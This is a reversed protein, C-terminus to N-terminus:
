DVDWTAASWGPTHSAAPTRSALDPAGYVARVLGFYLRHFDGSRYAHATIRPDLDTPSVDNRHVVQCEYVLPCQGVTPALVSSAKEVTLDCDAFKDIDRGSLTGCTACAAALDEGPVNVTFCGTHEICQHTYRSPRVLVTWLPLGWTSGIQGWGITMINAKGSSDYSGLLLGRSTMAKMVAEFHETYNVKNREM